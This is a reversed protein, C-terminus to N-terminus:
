LNPTASYANCLADGTHHFVCFAIESMRQLLTNGQKRQRVIM